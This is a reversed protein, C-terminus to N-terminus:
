RGTSQAALARLTAAIMPLFEAAAKQVAEVLCAPNEVLAQDHNGELANELITGYWGGGSYEVAGAVEWEERGVYDLLDAVAAITTPPSTLVAELAKDL